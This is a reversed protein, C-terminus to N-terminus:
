ATLLPVAYRGFVRDRSVLTLGEALAQAILMRDFPDRHHLPLGALAALHRFEIGLAQFGSSAIDEEISGQYQLKGLDIKITLEWASVMSVFVADAVAIAEVARAALQKDKLRWWLFAHSDLLLRM